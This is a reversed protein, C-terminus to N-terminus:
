NIRIYIGNMGNPLTATLIAAEIGGPHWNMGAPFDRHVDAGELGVEKAFRASSEGIFGGEEIGISGICM